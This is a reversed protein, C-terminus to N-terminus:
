TIDQASQKQAAPKGARRGCAIMSRPQRQILSNKIEKVSQKNFAMGKGYEHANYIQTREVHNGEYRHQCNKVAIVALAINLALAPQEANTHCHQHAGHNDLLAVMEQRNVAHTRRHIKVLQIMIDVPNALEATQRSLVPRCAAERTVM